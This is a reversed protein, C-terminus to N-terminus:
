HQTEWPQARRPEAPVGTGPEAAAAAPRPWGVALVAALLLTSLAGVLRDALDGQWLTWVFSIGFNSTAHLVIASWVSRGTALYLRTTIVASGAIGLCFVAFEPLFNGESQQITGQVSFLPLHWCAHFLALALSGGFYGWRALLRDLAFGRWGAEEVLPGLVFIQVAFGILQVPEALLPSPGIAGGRLAQVAIRVGAVIVPVLFIILYPQWGLRFQTCRRWLLRLAPQGGARWTMLTGAITPACGGLALLLLNSAPPPPADPHVSGGPLGFVIMSGWCLWSIAYTLAFYSWLGGLRGALRRTTM